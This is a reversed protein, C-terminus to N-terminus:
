RAAEENPIQRTPLGGMVACGCTDFAFVFEGNAARLLSTRFADFFPMTNTAM